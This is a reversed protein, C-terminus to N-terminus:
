EVRGSEIIKPTDSGPNPRQLQGRFCAALEVPTHSLLEEQCGGLGLSAWAEESGAPPSEEDAGSFCLLLKPLM